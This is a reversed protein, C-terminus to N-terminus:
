RHCAVAEERDQGVGQEEEDGDEEEPCTQM